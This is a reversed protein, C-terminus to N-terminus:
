NKKNRYLDTMNIRDPLKEYCCHKTILDKLVKQPLTIVEKINNNVLLALKMLSIVNTTNREISSKYQM